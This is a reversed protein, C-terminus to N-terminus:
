SNKRVGRGLNCLAHTDNANFSGLSPVTVRRYRERCVPLRGTEIRDRCELANLKSSHIVDTDIMQFRVAELRGAMTLRLPRLAKVTPRWYGAHCAAPPEIVKLCSGTGASCNLPSSGSRVSRCPTIIQESHNASVQVFCSPPLCDIPEAAPEQNGFGELM